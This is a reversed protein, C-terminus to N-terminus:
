WLHTKGCRHCYVAQDLLHQPSTNCIKCTHGLRMEDIRNTILGHRLGATDAVFMEPKVVGVGLCELM